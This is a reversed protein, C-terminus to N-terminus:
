HMGNSVQLDEWVRKCLVNQFCLIRLPRVIAIRMGWQLPLDPGAASWFNQRTYKTRVFYFLHHIKSPLFSQWLPTPPDALSCHCANFPYHITVSKRLVANQCTFHRTSINLLFIKLTVVVISKIIPSYWEMSDCHVLNLNHVIIALVESFHTINLPEWYFSKKSNLAPVPTVAMFIPKHCSLPSYWWFSGFYM